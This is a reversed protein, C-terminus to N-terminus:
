SFSRHEHGSFLGVHLTNEALSIVRRSCYGPGCRSPPDWGSIRRRVIKKGQLQMSNTLRSMYCSDRDCDLSSCCRQTPFVIAHRIEGVRFHQQTRTQNQLSSTATHLRCAVTSRAVHQHASHRSPLDPVLYVIKLTRNKMKPAKQSSRRPRCRHHMSHEAQSDLVLDELYAFWNPKSYSNYAPQWRSNGQQARYPPLQITSLADHHRARSLTHAEYWYGYLDVAAM